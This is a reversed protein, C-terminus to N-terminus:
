ATACTNDRLMDCELVLGAETWRTLDQVKVSRKKECRRCKVTEADNFRKGAETQTINHTPFVLRDGQLIAKVLTAESIDMITKHMLGVWQRPTPYM